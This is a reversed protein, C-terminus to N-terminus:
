GIFSVSFGNRWSEAESDLDRWWTRISRWWCGYGWTGFGGSQLFRADTVSIRRTRGVYSWQGVDGEGDGLWASGALSFSSAKKEWSHTWCPSGSTRNMLRAARVPSRQVPCTASGPPFLSGSSRSSRAAAILSVESSIPNSKVVCSQIGTPFKGSRTTVVLQPATGYPKQRCRARAISIRGSQHNKTREDEKPRAAVRRTEPQLWGLHSGSM